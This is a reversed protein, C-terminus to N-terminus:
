GRLLLTHRDCLFQGAEAESQRFRGLWESAIAGYAFGAVQKENGPLDWKGVALHCVGAADALLECHFVASAGGLQGGEVDKCLDLPMKAAEIAQTVDYADFTMYTGGIAEVTLGRHQITRRVEKGGYESVLRPVGPRGKRMRLQGGVSCDHEHHNCLNERGLPTPRM